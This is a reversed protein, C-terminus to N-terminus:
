TWEKVDALMQHFRETEAADAFKRSRAEWLVQKAAPTALRCLGRVAWLRLDENAGALVEVLLALDALAPTEAIIALLLVRVSDDAEARFAAVLEATGAAAAHESLDGLVGDQYAGHVNRRRLLDVCTKM